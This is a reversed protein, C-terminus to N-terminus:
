LILGSTVIFCNSVKKIVDFTCCEFSMCKFVDKNPLTIEIPLHPKEARAKQQEAFIKEFAELRAKWFPPPVFAEKKGGKQDKHEPQAVPAASM